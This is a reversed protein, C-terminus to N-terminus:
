RTRSRAASRRFLWGVILLPLWAGNWFRHSRMSAGVLCSQCGARATASASSASQPEERPPPEAEPDVPVVGAGLAARDDEAQDALRTRHCLTTSLGDERDAYVMYVQDLEFNYGCAASNAATRVTVEESDVGKWKQTVRITVLRIGGSPEIATVRGEFVAAVEQAATAPDPPQMCSCARAPEAATVAIAVWGLLALSCIMGARASSNLENPM